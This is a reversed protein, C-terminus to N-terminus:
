ENKIKNNDERYALEDNLVQTFHDALCLETAAHGVFVGLFAVVVTQVQATTQDDVAVAHAAHTAEDVMGTLWVALHLFPEHEEASKFCREMLFDSFKILHSFSSFDHM